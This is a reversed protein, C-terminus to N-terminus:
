KTLFTKIIRSIDMVFVDELCYSGERICWDYVVGRGARMCSEMIFKTSYTNDLEGSELGETIFLTLYKYTLRSISITYKSKSTIIQKYSQAIFMWGLQELTRSAITFFRILKDYCCDLNEFDLNNQILLEIQIYSNEIIKEKSEFYHYFNGVSINANKCIDSVKVNDYGYDRFLSMATDTIRLKTQIAHQQRTTLKKM